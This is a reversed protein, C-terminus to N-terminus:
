RLAKAAARQRRAMKLNGSMEFYHMSLQYSQRALVHQKEKRFQVATDGFLSAAKKLWRMKACLHAAFLMEHSYGEKGPKTCIALMKLYREVVRRGLLNPAYDQIAARFEVMGYYARDQKGMASSSLSTYGQGAREHWYAAKRFSSSKEFCRAIAQYIGVRDLLSGQRSLRRYSKIALPYNAHLEAEIASDLPYM